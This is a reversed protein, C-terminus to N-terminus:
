RLEVESCCRVFNGVTNDVLVLVDPDGGVMIGVLFLVARVAPVGIGEEDLSLSLTDNERAVYSLGILEIGDNVIAVM